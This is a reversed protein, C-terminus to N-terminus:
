KGAEAAAIYEAEMISLAVCKQLRSKGHMADDGWSGRFVDGNRFYFTGLGSKKGYRWMGDYINGDGDSLRGKGEPLGGQCHGVYLGGRYKIKVILSWKKQSDREVEMLFGIAVSDLLKEPVEYPWSDTIAPPESPETVRMMRGCNTMKLYELLILEQREFAMIRWHHVASSPYVKTHDNDNELGYWLFMNSFVHSSLLNSASYLPHLAPSQPQSQQLYGSRDNKGIMNRFVELPLCRTYPAAQNSPPTLAILQPVCYHQLLFGLWPGHCKKPNNFLSRSSSWNGGLGNRSSWKVYM